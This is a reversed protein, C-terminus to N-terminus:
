QSPETHWRLLRFNKFQMQYCHKFWKGPFNKPFKEKNEGSSSLKQKQFSELRWRSILRHRKIIKIQFTILYFVALLSVYGAGDYVEMTVDFLGSERKIWPQQNNFLLSKRSHNSIYKNLARYNLVRNLSTVDVPCRYTHIYIYIYIYFIYKYIYISM